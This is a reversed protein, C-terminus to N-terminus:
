DQQPYYYWRIATIKRNQDVDFAIQAFDDDVTATGNKYPPEFYTMEVIYSEAAELSTNGNLNILGYEVKGKPKVTDLSDITYSGYLFKGFLVSKDQSYYNKNMCDSDRYYAKLIDDLTNGVRLGRSFLDEDRVSAAATLIYEDGIKSFVLTLDNYSYIRESVDTQKYHVAGVTLDDYSFKKASSQGLTEYEKVAETIEEGDPTIVAETKRGCGVIGVAIFAGCLVAATLRICKRNIKRYKRM